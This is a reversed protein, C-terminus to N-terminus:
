GVVNLNNGVGMMKLLADAAQQSSELTKKLVAVQAETARAANKAALAQGVGGEISGVDM